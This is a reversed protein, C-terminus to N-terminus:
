LVMEWLHELGILADIESDDFSLLKHAQKKLFALEDEDINDRDNKEFGLMYFWRDQMTSAIITRTSGRKGRNPLSV